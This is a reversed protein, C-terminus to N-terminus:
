DKHSADESLSSVFNSQHTDPDFYVLSTMARYLRSEPM